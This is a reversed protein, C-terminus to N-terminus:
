PLPTIPKGHMRTHCHRESTTNNNQHCNILKTGPYSLSICNFHVLFPDFVADFSRLHFPCVDRCFLGLTFHFAPPSTRSIPTWRTSRLLLIRLPYTVIEKHCMGCPSSARPRIAPAARWIQSEGHNINYPVHFFSSLIRNFSEFVAYISHVCPDLFCVM